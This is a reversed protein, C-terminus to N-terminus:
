IAVDCLNNVCALNNCCDLNLECPAFRRFCCHSGGLEPVIACSMPECCLRRDNRVNCRTRHPECRKNLKKKHRKRKKRAALETAPALGLLMALGAGIAGGVRRRTWADFQGNDM